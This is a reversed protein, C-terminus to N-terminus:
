RVGLAQRRAEIADVFRQGDAPTFVTPNNDHHTGGTNITTHGMLGGRTEIRLEGNEFRASKVDRVPTKMVFTMASGVAGAVTRAIFSGFNGSASDVNANVKKRVDRVLSDGLQMRVTDRVLSYVVAGNTSVIRLSDPTGDSVQTLGIRNPIRARGVPSSDSAALKAAREALDDVQADRARQERSQGCAVATLLVVAATARNARPNVHSLSM